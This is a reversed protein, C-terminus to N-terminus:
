PFVNISDLIIVIVLFITNVRRDHKISTTGGIQGIIKRVKEKEKRYHELEEKLIDTENM